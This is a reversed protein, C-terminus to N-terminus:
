GHVIATAEPYVRAARKLFSLPSLPQYNAANRELGVDYIRSATARKRGQRAHTKRVRSKKIRGSKRGAM